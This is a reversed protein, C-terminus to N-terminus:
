EEGDKPTGTFLATTVSCNGIKCPGQLIFNSITKNIYMYYNEIYVHIYILLHHLCICIFKYIYIIFFRQVSVSELRFGTSGILRVSSDILFLSFHDLLSRDSVVIKAVTNKDIINQLHGHGLVHDM